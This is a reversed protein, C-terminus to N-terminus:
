KLNNSLWHEIKEATDGLLIIVLWGFLAPIGIWKDDVGAYTAWITAFFSVWALLYVVLYFGKTLPHTREEVLFWLPAYLLIIAAVIIVFSQTLIAYIYIVTSVCLALKIWDRGTFVPTEPHYKRRFIYQVPYKIVYNLALPIAVLAHIALIYKVYWADEAGKIPLVYGLVIWFLFAISQGGLAFAYSVWGFPILWKFPIYKGLRADIWADMKRNDPERVYSERLLFEAREFNGSSLEVTGMGFMAGPSTPDEKMDRLLIKKIRGLALGMFAHYSDAYQVTPDTPDADLAAKLMRASKLPKDNAYVLSGIALARGDDPSLALCNEAYKQALEKKGQMLYLRALRAHADEFDPDISLATLYAEIAAHVQETDELCAGQYWYLFAVNPYEALADQIQELAKEWRKLDILAVIKQTRYHLEM